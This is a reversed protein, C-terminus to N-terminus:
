IKSERSSEVLRVIRLEILAQQFALDLSSVATVIVADSSQLGTDIGDVQREGALVLKCCPFLVSPSKYTECGVM